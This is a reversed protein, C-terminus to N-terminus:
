SGASGSSPPRSVLSHKSEWPFHWWFKDGDKDRHGCFDPTVSSTEKHVLVATQAEPFMSKVKNLTIGSDAIDDVILIRDTGYKKRCHELSEEDFTTYLSERNGNKYSQAIMSAIIVERDTAKGLYYAIMGAPIFGGYGVALVIKPQAYAVLMDDVITRAYGEIDLWSAIRLPKNSAM